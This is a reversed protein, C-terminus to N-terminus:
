SHYRLARPAPHFWPAPLCRIDPDPGAPLAAAKVRDAPPRWPDPTARMLAPEISVEIATTAPIMPTATIKPMM